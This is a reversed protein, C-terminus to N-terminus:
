APESAGAAVVQDLAGAQAVGSYEAVTGDLFTASSASVTIQLGSASAKTDTLYYLAIDGGDNQYALSTPARTWAGNVNDSVQVQGSTGARSARRRLGAENTRAPTM